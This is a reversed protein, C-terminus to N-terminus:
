SWLIDANQEAIFPQAPTEATAGIYRIIAACAVSNRPFLAGSGHGATSSQLL